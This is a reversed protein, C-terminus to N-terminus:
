KIKMKLFVEKKNYLPRIGSIDKMTGIVEKGQKWQWILSALYKRKGDSLGNLQSELIITDLIDTLSEALNRTNNPNLM